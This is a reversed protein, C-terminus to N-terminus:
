HKSFTRPAHLLVLTVSVPRGHLLLRILPACDCIPQGKVYLQLKLVMAYVFFYRERCREKMNLNSELAEM